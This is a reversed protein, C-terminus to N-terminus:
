LASLIDETHGKVRVKRWEKLLKGEEDILFTSRVIGMYERGYMKKLQWVGYLESVKHDEDSLLLFPLEYKDKFKRHSKVPDPSVGLVAAGKAELIHYSDRFSCAEDTCAPTMDKPYFYLIVKRGRYSSLTVEEGGAAPLTFDPVEQGIALETM